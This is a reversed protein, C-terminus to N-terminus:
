ESRRLRLLLRWAPPVLVAGALALLFSQVIATFSGAAACAAAIGPDRGHFAASPRARRAGGGDVGRGPCPGRWRVLAALLVVALVAWRAAQIRRGRRPAADPPTRRRPPAHFDPRSM